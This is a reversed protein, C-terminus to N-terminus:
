QSARAKALLIGANNLATQSSDLATQEPTGLMAKRVEDWGPAHEKICSVFFQLNHCVETLANYLEPALSNTRALADVNLALLAIQLNGNRDGPAIGLKLKAYRIEDDYIKLITERDHPKIEV